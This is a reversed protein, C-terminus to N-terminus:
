KPNREQVKYQSYAYYQWVLNLAPSPADGIGSPPGGSVSPGSGKGPHM